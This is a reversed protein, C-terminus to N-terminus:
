WREAGYGHGQQDEGQENYEATTPEKCFGIAMSIVQVLHQEIGMILGDGHNIDRHERLDTEAHEADERRQSKETQLFFRSLSRNKKGSHGEPEHGKHEQNEDGARHGSVA